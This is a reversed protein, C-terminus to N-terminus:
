SNENMVENAIKTYTKMISTLHEEVVKSYKLEAVVDRMVQLRRYVESFRNVVEVASNGSKGEIAKSIRDLSDLLAKIEQKNM